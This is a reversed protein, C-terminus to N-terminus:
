RNGVREDTPAESAGGHKRKWVGSMSGSPPTFVKTYVTETKITQLGRNRLFLRRRLQSFTPIETQSIELSRPFAQQQSEVAGGNE